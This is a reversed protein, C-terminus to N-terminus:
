DYQDDPDDQQGAALLQGAQHCRDSSQEDAGAREYRWSGRAGLRLL